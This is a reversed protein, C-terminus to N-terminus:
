KVKKAAKKIATHDMTQSAAYRILEEESLVKIPQQEKTVQRKKRREEARSM